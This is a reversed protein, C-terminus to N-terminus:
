FLCLAGFFSSSKLSNCKRAESSFRVIQQARELPDVYLKQTTSEGSVSLKFPWLQPM